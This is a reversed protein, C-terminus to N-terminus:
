GGLRFYLPMNFKVRVPKGNQKGPVWKPMMEVVRIAAEDCGGGIGRLVRVNTIAGNTAVIFQVYVTGQIGNQAARSPYDLNTALFKNRAEDGGPFQPMTEVITYANDPLSSIEEWWIREGNQFFVMVTSDHFCKSVTIELYKADPNEPKISDPIKGVRSSTTCNEKYLKRANTDSM